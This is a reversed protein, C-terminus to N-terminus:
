NKGNTAREKEFYKAVLFAIDLSQEYNLRPDCFTQYNVPLDKADLEQSGGTCETVHEGTLELHIGSLRSGLERHIAINSTIESVIADFSRTKHGSPATTTNGHCPDCCWVPRHQTAQVAKIHDPLFKDIKDAGYRTILTVRGPELLPDLIDLVRVLEAADMTPGVKVGVPNKVGRFYEIHAGDLQRTRDGIWIFHASLNYWDSVPAPNLAQEYDLLLAEHSTYMDVTNLASLRSGDAGIVKMFGLADTLKNVIMQYDRRIDERRVYGLDWAKPHHIDAFGGSLLLRVYNVTSASHFYASLLRQPDPKRDKPDISNVNDGRYSMIKEGDVTEFPSSRPKAYQGAMRAIRVIPLRMGWILVLSMQLLVKLKDESPDKLQARLRDIEAASVLPPLNAIRSLVTDLEQKDEYVVTKSSRSPRGHSQRGSSPRSRPRQCQKRIQAGGKRFVTQGSIDLHAARM